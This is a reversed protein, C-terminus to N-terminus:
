QRSPWASLQPTPHHLAARPLVGDLSHCSAGAGTLLGPVYGSARPARTAILDFTGAYWSMGARAPLVDESGGPLVM